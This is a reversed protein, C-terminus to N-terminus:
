NNDLWVKALIVKNDSRYTVQNLNLKVRRVLTGIEFQFDTPFM